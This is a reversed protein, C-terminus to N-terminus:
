DRVRIYCGIFVLMYITKFNRTKRNQEGDSKGLSNM